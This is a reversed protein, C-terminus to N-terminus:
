EEFDHTDGGRIKHVDKVRKRTPWLGVWRNRRSADLDGRDLWRQVPPNTEIGVSTVLPFREANEYFARVKKIRGFKGRM